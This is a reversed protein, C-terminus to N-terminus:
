MIVGPLTCLLNVCLFFTYISASAVIYQIMIHDNKHPILLTASTTNSSSGSSGGCGSLHVYM